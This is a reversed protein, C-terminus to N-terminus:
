LGRKAPTNHFLKHKLKHVLVCEEFESTNGQCCPGHEPTRIEVSFGEANKGNEHKEDGQQIGSVAHLLRNLSLSRRAIAFPPEAPPNGPSPTFGRGRGGPRTGFAPATSGGPTTTGALGGSRVAGGAAAGVAIPVDPAAATLGCTVGATLASPRPGAVVVAGSESFLYGAGAFQKALLATRLFLRLPPSLLRLSVMSAIRRPSSMRRAMVRSAAASIKSRIARRISNFPSFGREFGTGIFHPSLDHLTMRPVDHLHRPVIIQRADFAQPLRQTLFSLSKQPPKTLLQNIERSGDAFPDGEQGRKGYGTKGRWGLRGHGRFFGFGLEVVL